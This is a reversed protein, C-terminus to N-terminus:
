GNTMIRELSEEAFFNRLIEEKFVNPPLTQWAKNNGYLSVSIWGFIDYMREVEGIMENFSKLLDMEADLRAKIEPPVSCVAEEGKSNVYKVIKLM